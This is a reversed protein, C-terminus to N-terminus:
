RQDRPVVPLNETRLTKGKSSCWTLAMMSYTAKQIWSREGPMINKLDMWMKAHTLLKNRKLWLITSWQISAGKNIWENTLPLFSHCKSQRQKQYNHIVHRYINVHLDKHICINENRKYLYIPTSIRSWSTLTHKVKQSAPWSKELTTTENQIRTLTIRSNWKREM